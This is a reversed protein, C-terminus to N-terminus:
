SYKKVFNKESRETIQPTVATEDRSCRKVAEDKLLKITSQPLSSNLHTARLKSRFGWLMFYGYYFKYLSNFICAISPVRPKPLYVSYTLQSLQSLRYFKKYYKMPWVTCALTYPIHQILLQFAKIMKENCMFTYERSTSPALHPGSRLYKYKRIIIRSYKPTTRLSYAATFEALNMLLIQPDM